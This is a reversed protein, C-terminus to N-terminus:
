VIWGSRAYTPPEIIRVEEPFGPWDEQRAQYLKQMAYRYMFKGIELYEPSLEYISVLYPAKNEVCIFLFKTYAFHGLEQLLAKCQNIGELYMAASVHYGFKQVSRIFGSYTADDCTKLDMVVSHSQSIADPRVKVMEKYHTEDDVDMSRYWWYISSECVANDLLASATPHALVNKAMAKAQELQDPTVITKGKNDAFFADREARGANTRLNLSPMVAIDAEWKEPELVLSHVATGLAMNATSEKPHRRDYAVHAPTKELFKKLTSSSTGMSGHYDDNSLDLYWGPEFQPRQPQQEQKEAADTM